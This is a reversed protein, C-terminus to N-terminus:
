PAETQAALEYLRKERGKLKPHHGLGALDLIQRWRYCWDFRRLAEAANKRGLAARRQPDQQLPTLADVLDKETSGLDIVAHEWGFDRKFAAVQPAQGIMVAGAAAGEFFRAGIESQGQTEDECGVKAPYAVFYHSRKACNAVLDRHERHDRPQILLGPITDYIYFIEKRAALKLLAAHAAEARRGMSYVDICRGPPNPYPTFRLVDAGLPVHHTPRGVSGQVASVSGSFCLALDDFDKLLSLHYEYEKLWASYFEVMFCVKKRCREKWGKIASLYILDAPNMCIFAFLEYDRQLTIPQVGPNFHPILRRLGPRWIMRRALWRRAEYSSGPQLSFLDVDDVGCIVDEFEYNSCWAAHRNAGRLSAICVRAPNASDSM